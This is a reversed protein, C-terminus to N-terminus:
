KTSTEDEKEEKAEDLVEVKETKSAEVQAQENKKKPMNVGQVKVNVSVVNLGTMSEVQTKVKNQVEWAIDPIRAGYEVTISIDIVTDKAGVQVKVGKTKRGFMEGIGNASMSAVGKVEQAAMGAITAVVDESINIDDEDKASVVNQTTTTEEDVKVDDKNVEIVNEDEM